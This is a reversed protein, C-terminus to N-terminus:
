VEADAWVGVGLIEEDGGTTSVVAELEQGDDSLVNYVHKLSLQRLLM